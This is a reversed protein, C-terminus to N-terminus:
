RRNQSISDAFEHKEDIKRLPYDHNFRDALQAVWSFRKLDYSLNGATLPQLM